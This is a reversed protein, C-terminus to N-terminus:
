LGQQLDKTERIELTTAPKNNHPTCKHNSNELSWFFLVCVRQLRSEVLDLDLFRQEHGWGSQIKKCGAVKKATITRQITCGKHRTTNLNVFNFNEPRCPKPSGLGGSHSDMIKKALRMMQKWTEASNHSISTLLELLESYTRTFNTKATM